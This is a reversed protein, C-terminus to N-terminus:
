AWWLGMGGGFVGMVGLGGGRAFDGSVTVGRLENDFSM